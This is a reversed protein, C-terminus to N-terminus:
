QSIQREDIEGKQCGSSPKVEGPEIEAGAFEEMGEAHSRCYHITLILEPLGRRKLPVKVTAEAPWGCGYVQCQRTKEGV